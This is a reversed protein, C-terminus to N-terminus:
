KKFYMRVKKLGPKVIIPIGYLSGLSNMPLLDEPIATGTMKKIKKYDKKSAEVKLLKPVDAVNLKEMAERMTEFTIPPENQAVANTMTAYTRSDKEETNM